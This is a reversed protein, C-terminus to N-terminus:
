RCVDGRVVVREGFSSAASPTVPPTSSSTRRELGYQHPSSALSRRGVPRLKALEDLVRPARRRGFRSRTSYSERRLALQSPGIPPRGHRASPGDLLIIPPRGPMRHSPGPSPWM